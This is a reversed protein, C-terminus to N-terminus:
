WELIFKHSCYLKFIKISELTWYIPMVTGSLKLSKKEEEELTIKVKYPFFTLATNFLNELFKGGKLIKMNLGLLKGEAVKWNCSIKRLLCLDFFVITAHAIILM